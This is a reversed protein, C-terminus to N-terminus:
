QIGPFQKYLEEWPMKTVKNQNFDIEYAGEIAKEINTNRPDQGAGGFFGYALYAVSTGEPLDFGLTYKKASLANAYLGGYYSPNEQAVTMVEKGNSDTEKYFVQYISGIQTQGSNNDMAFNMIMLEFKGDGLTPDVVQFCNASSPYKSTGDLQISYPSVDIGNCIPESGAGQLLMINDAKFSVQNLEPISYAISSNILYKKTKQQPTSTAKLSTDTFTAEPTPNVAAINAAANTNQVVPIQAPTPNYAQQSSDCGAALLSFLSFLFLLKKM